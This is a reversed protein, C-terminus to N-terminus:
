LPSKLFDDIFLISRFYQEAAINLRVVPFNSRRSLRVAINGSTEFYNWMNAQLKSLHWVLAIRQASLNIFWTLHAFLGSRHRGRGELYALPLTPDRSTVWESSLLLAWGRRWVFWQIFWKDQSREWVTLHQKCRNRKFHHECGYTDYNIICVIITCSMGTEYM